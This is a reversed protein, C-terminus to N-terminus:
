TRASQSSVNRCRVEALTSTIEPFSKGLYLLCSQGPERLVPIVTHTNEHQSM